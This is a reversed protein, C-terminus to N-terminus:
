QVVVLRRRTSPAAGSSAKLAVGIQAWTNNVNKTWSMTTTTGAALKDSDARVHSEQNEYFNDRQAQSGGATLTAGVDGYLDVVDIVWDGAVSSVNVSPNTADFNGTATAATGLPTGSDVGCYSRIALTAVDVVGAFTVTVTQSGTAGVRSYMAVGHQDSGVPIQTGVATMPGATAVVSSITQAPNAKWTVTAILLPNTCGGFIARTGSITDDGDSDGVTTVADFTVAGFALSPIFTCIYFLLLALVRTSKYEQM